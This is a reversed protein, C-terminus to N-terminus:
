IVEADMEVLNEEIVQIVTHVLQVRDEYLVDMVIQNVVQDVYLVVERTVEKTVVHFHLVDVFVQNVPIVKIVKQEQQVLTVRLDM